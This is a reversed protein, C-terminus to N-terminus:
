QPTQGATSGIVIIILRVFPPRGQLFMQGIKGDHSWITILSLDAGIGTRIGQIYGVIGQALFVIRPCHRLSTDLIKGAPGIFIIAAAM